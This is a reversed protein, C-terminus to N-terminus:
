RNCSLWGKAAGLSTDFSCFRWLMPEESSFRELPTAAYGSEHGSNRRRYFLESRDRHSAPLGPVPLLAGEFQPNSGILGWFHQRYNGLPIKPPKLKCGWFLSNLMAAHKSRKM